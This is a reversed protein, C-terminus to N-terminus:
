KRSPWWSSSSPNSAAAPAPPTSNVDSGTPEAFQDHSRQIAEREADTLADPIVNSGTPEEFQAHNAKIAEREADAPAAVPAPAASGNWWQAAQDSFESLSKRGSQLYDSSSKLSDSGFKGIADQNRYALYSATGVAAVGAAVKAYDYWTWTEVTTTVTGTEENVEVTTEVKQVSGDALENVQTDQSSVSGPKIPEQSVVVSHTDKESEVVTDPKVNAAQAIQSATASRQAAKRQAAKRQAAQRAAAQQQAPTQKADIQICNVLAVVLLVSSKAVKNVLQRINKTQM